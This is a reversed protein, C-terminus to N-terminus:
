SSAETPTALREVIADLTVCVAELRELAATLEDSGEIVVTVPVNRARM